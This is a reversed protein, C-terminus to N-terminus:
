RDDGEFRTDRSRRESGFATLESLGGDERPEDILRCGTFQSMGTCVMALRADQIKCSM